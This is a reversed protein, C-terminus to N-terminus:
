RVASPRNVVLQWPDSLLSEDAARVFDVLRCSAIVGYNLPVSRWQGAAQLAAQLPYLETHPDLDLDRVYMRCTREVLGDGTTVSGTFDKWFRYPVGLRQESDHFISAAQIDAGLLLLKFDLEVMRAFASGPEFASPTDRDVLDDRHRGIAALSQMPHATRRAVPHQRIYESFTGMGKSPTQVPDYPQGEGFAFNFTPVALTGAMPPALCGIVEDLAQLYTALGDVPSGLFHLASHILLGDGARIGLSRLADVLQSQTM